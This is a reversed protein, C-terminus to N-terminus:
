PKKTSIKPIDSIATSQEHYHFKNKNTLTLYNKLAILLGLTLFAGPPLIGILFNNNSIHLTLNHGFSGFLLHANSLLTGQGIIERFSGLILLVLSFGLGNCFGDLASKKVNNKSAFAEVRGLIVCNTTILALYVGLSQYLEFSISKLLLVLITVLSAIILMYYPIRINTDLYDKLFAILSNSLTLVIITAFGLVLASVVNNSVALLPCLGLLQVLAPNNHWLGNKILTINSNSM